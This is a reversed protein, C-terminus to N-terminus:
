SRKRDVVRWKLAPRQKEWLRAYRKASSAFHYDQVEHWYEGERVYRQVAYRKPKPPTYPKPPKKPKQHPIVKM